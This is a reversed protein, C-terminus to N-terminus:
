LPDCTACLIAARQVAGAADERPRGKLIAADRRVLPPRVWRKDIRNLPPLEFREGVRALFRLGVRLAGSLLSELGCKLWDDPVQGLEVLLEKAARQLREVQSQGQRIGRLDALAYKAVM